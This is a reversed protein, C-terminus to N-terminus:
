RSDSEENLLVHPTKGSAEGAEHQTEKGSPWRVTISEIPGGSSAFFLERGSQSLYGGGAYYERVHAAGDATKATVRAGEAAGLLRVVLYQTDKENLLTVPVADNVGVLVDPRSDRNLDAITLSTADGTVVFGSERPWVPEFNGSGDGRLLLGSGSDFRGTEPQTGFFNQALCLDLFGDGDADVFASGFVPSIQALEPLERWTFRGSGDNILLGSELTDASFRVAEELCKETYIDELSAAAFSRFDKFKDRLHPMANSSCSRGRIPYLNDGEFEAEVLNRRGDGNYDGFYIQVPHDKSAHYKSNLGQNGVVYDIDGDGDIDGGAISNWWGSREGLGSAVTDDSLTGRDNRFLKVPGWEHAVLLDVWGDDDVDSWLASTVLGTAGLGDVEATADAFKGGNNKLLVSRPAMPYEGPIVRGGVFLDTDGDRDYDAASVVSGSEPLPPITGAPAKTFGGMGNNLYLRDYLEEAGKPFEYSGSVVYLDQDGDGDADIFVAGMDECAKDDRFAEVWQATFRGSGQNLRLEGIQGAAGGLYLDDDGDGDVDGWATGGGLQSLQNPLLPQLAFDDFFTEEHKRLPLDAKSYLAEVAAVPPQEAEGESQTVVYFHNAKLDTFEQVGGGPWHISLRDIVEADGLGFHVLPEDSSLYGRTSVLQRRQELGGALLEVRAGVGTSNASTGVLQLVVRNHEGSDNRYLSVTEEANRVILDLDGDRDFDAYAAGYSVGIKGLGWQDSVDEFQLGAGPNRM